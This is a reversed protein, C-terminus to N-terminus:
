TIGAYADLLRFLCNAVQLAGERELARVDNVM